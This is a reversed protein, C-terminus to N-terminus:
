PKNLSLGYGFYIGGRTGSLSLYHNINKQQLRLSYGGVAWFWEEYLFNYAAETRIFFTHTVPAKKLYFSRYITPTIVGTIGDDIDNLYDLYVAGVPLAVAWKQNPSSFKPGTLAAYKVNNQEINLRALSLHTNVDVKQNVGYSHVVSGGTSANLGRGSFGGFATQQKGKELSAATQFEPLAVTCSCLIGCVVLCIYKLFSSNM